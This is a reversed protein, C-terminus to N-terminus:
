SWSAHELVVRYGDYDAFSRGRQRWYPNFPAVEVFGADLM